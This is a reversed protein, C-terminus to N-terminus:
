VKFLADGLDVARAAEGVDPLAPMEAPFVLLVPGVEVAGILLELEIRDRQFIRRQQDDGVGLPKADVGVPGVRNLLLVVKARLGRACRSARAQQVVDEAMGLPQLGGLGALLDGLVGGLIEGGDGLPQAHRAVRRLLDRMEEVADHEAQEGLVHVQQLVVQELPQEVRQRLAAVFHRLARLFHQRFQEAVHARAAFVAEFVDQMEVAAQEVVVLRQREVRVREVDQAVDGPLVPRRDVRRDEARQELAEEIGVLARLDARVVGVGFLDHHDDLRHDHAREIRFPLRHLGFNASM